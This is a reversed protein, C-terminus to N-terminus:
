KEAGNSSKKLNGRFYCFNEEYAVVVRFFPQQDVPFLRNYDTTIEL